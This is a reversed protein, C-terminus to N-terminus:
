PDVNQLSRTRNLSHGRAKLLSSLSVVPISRKCLRLLDASYLFGTPLRGSVNCEESSLDDIEVERAVDSIELRFYRNGIKYLYM